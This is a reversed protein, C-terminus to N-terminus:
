SLRKPPIPGTNRGILTNWEQRRAVDTRVAKIEVRDLIYRARVMLLEALADTRLPIVDNVRLAPRRPDGLYVIKIELKANPHM